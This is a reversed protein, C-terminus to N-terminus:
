TAPKGLSKEFRALLQPVTPRIMQRLFLNVFATLQPADPPLAIGIEDHADTITVTRVTLSLAPDIIQLKKIEFEDRYGALLDGSRVGAVVDDWGPLAVLQAHPFNRRAYDEYASHAIVGLRDRFDALVSQLDRDGYERALRLRSVALAHHLVLYPESFMVRRARPLSISLKSAAIDAEGAAIQDVVADFSDATRVFRAPVGLADAIARAMDIDSGALAAGTGSFFPATEINAVAVRLEGRALIADIDRRNAARAAAPLASM